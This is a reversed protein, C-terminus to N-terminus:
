QIEDLTGFRYGNEKLFVIVEEIAELNSLSDNHMLVIAGNHHYTKFHDVVYEKGPQNETDYDKYAISWFVTRYGLDETIQMTKKSYAGEPPRFFMDMAYGTAEYFAEECGVIEGYIEDESCSPLKAHTVSHNGVLHGEEKMRKATETNAEIFYNTIFFTAKIEHKKFIDLFKMTYPNGYGCDMTLYIVKDENEVAENRFMGSYERIDFMEGSGSPQQNLKRYFWWNGLQNEIAAYERNEIKELVQAKVMERSNEAYSPVETPMETIKPIETITPSIEEEEQKTPVPTISLVPELTPAISPEQEVDKNSDVQMITTPTPCETPATVTIIEEASPKEIFLHDRGIHCVILICICIVHGLFLGAKEGPKM